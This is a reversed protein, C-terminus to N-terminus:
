RAPPPRWFPPVEQFRSLLSSFRGRLQFFSKVRKFSYSSIRLDFWLDSDISSDDKDLKTLFADECILGDIGIDQDMQFLPLNPPLFLILLIQIWKM